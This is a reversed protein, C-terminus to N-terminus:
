VSLVRYKKGWVCVCFWGLIGGMTNSAVDRWSPFRSPLFCQLVECFYSISFCTVLVVILISQIYMRRSCCYATMALGLPVYLLINALIEWKGEKGSPLALANWRLISGRFGFNFPFLTTAFILLVSALGLIRIAQSNTRPFREVDKL